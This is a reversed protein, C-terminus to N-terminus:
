AEPIVRVSGTMYSVCHGTLGVRDGELDCGVTGGRPSVQRGVLTSKGLRGSWYPALTCHASGTVPDEPIGERPAFFRSVFDIGAEDGPASVGVAFADIRSLEGMDAVMDRVVSPDDFIAYLDRAELITDPAAGLARTLDASLQVFRPDDPTIETPPLAPFDLRVAGGDQQELPLLGSRSLFTLKPGIRRESRLMVHAAALTAHGCLVVESAPTFWRIGLTGDPVDTASPAVESRFTEDVPGVFVTESLNHETAMSQMVSASPWHDVTVVAAPNGGFVTQTFADVIYILRQM